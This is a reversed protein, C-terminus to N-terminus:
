ACPIEARVRTGTGPTSDVTVVGGLAEARNRMNRLGNGARVDDRGAPAHGLGDDSVEIVLRDGARAVEVRAATARAHREVNVLAECVVFYAAAAVPAPLGEDDVIVDVPVSLRAVVSVLAARLGDQAMRPHPVGRALARLEDMAAAVEADTADMFEGLGAQGDLRGRAMRLAVRIGLLRQQAGDHLDREMRSREFEGAHRLREQIERVEALRSRLEAHLRANELALRAAAAAAEVLTPNDLLVADYTIAAVPTGDHDSTLITCARNTALRPDDIPEGDAGVFCARGPVWFALQLSPDGLTRALAARTRDQSPGTDLALLLDAVAGRDLRARLLGVLFAVPTACVAITESWGLLDAILSGALLNGSLTDAVLFAAVAGNTWLVPALARRAPPGATRWRHVLILVVSGFVILDLPLTVLGVTRRLAESEHILLLNSPCGPCSETVLTWGLGSLFADVYAVTVVLRAARSTLRGVPFALVLYVALAIGLGNILRTATYTVPESLYLYPPLQATGVAMMLIGTRNGPRQSLAVAAAVIWTPSIVFIRLLIYPDVPEAHVTIVLLGATAVLGLGALGLWLPGRRTVAPLSQSM